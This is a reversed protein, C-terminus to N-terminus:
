AATAEVRVAVSVGWSTDAIAALDAAPFVVQYDAFSSTLTSITKTSRVAAGELLKVVVSGSTSNTRRLRLTVTVDGGASPKSIPLDGVLPSSTPNNPSRAFTADSADAMAAVLSAAGGVNTWGTSTTVNTVTAPNSTTPATVNVTVESYTSGSADTVTCRLVYTGAGGTPTFTTSAATADTFTATPGSTKTWAYTKTGSGGSPTAAVTSTQGPYISGPTATVSVTVAGASPVSTDRDTAIQTATLANDYIRVDDVHGYMSESPYAQSGMLTLSKSTDYQLTGGIAQSAVLTGDVYLKATTGDWTGALHHWGLDAMVTGSPAQVWADGASTAIGFAPRFETDGNVYLGYSDSAGARSKAVAAKYLRYGSDQAILKAWCEVTVATTPELGTRPVSVYSGDAPNAGAPHDTFLSGGSHGAASWGVDGALTGTHGNGSDDTLSTGSGANCSYAALLTM